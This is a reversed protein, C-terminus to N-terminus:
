LPKPIAELSLGFDGIIARGTDDILINAPKIDRHVVSQGHAARLGSVIDRLLAIVRNGPLGHPHLAILNVLSGSAYFPMVVYPHEASRTDADVIPVVNPHTIDPLRGERSLQRRFADDIAIKLAVTRGPREHHSAKWVQAFAGEGVVEHLIYNGIRDGPQLPKSM